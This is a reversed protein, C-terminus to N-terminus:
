EMRVPYTNHSMRNYEVIVHAYVFDKSAIISEKPAQDKERIPKLTHMMTLRWMTGGILHVKVDHTNYLTLRIRVLQRLLYPM